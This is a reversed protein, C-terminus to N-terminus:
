IKVIQQTRSDGLDNKVKVLYYGNILTDLDIRVRDVSSRKFYSVMRGQFDYIMVEFNDSNSVFEIMVYETAPNPYVLFKEETLDFGEDLPSSYDYGTENASIEVTSLSDFDNNAKTAMMGMLIMTIMVLKKM